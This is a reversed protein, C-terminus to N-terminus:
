RIQYLTMRGDLYFFPRIGIVATVSKCSNIAFDANYKVLMANAKYITSNYFYMGYGDNTKISLLGKCIHFRALVAESGRTLDICLYDTRALDANKTNFM